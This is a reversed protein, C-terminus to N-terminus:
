KGLNNHVLRQMKQSAVMKPQKERVKTNLSYKFESEVQYYEFAIM